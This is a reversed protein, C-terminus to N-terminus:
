WHRRREHWGTLRRGPSWWRCFPCRRPHTERLVPETIGPALVLDAGLALLEADSAGPHPEETVDGCAGHVRVWVGVAESGGHVVALVQDDRHHVAGLAAWVAEPGDWAPSSTVLVRYDAV